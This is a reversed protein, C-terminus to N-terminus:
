KETKILHKIAQLATGEYDFFIKKQEASLQHTLERSILDLKMMYLSSLEFRDQDNPEPVSELLLINENIWTLDPVM